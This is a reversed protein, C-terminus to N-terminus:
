TTLLSKAFERAEIAAAEPSSAGNYWIRDAYASTLQDVSAESAHADAPLPFTRDTRKIGVVIGGHDKIAEIENLFRVDDAVAIRGSHHAAVMQMKVTDIWLSPYVLDRGWETGLTQMMQRSSKGGFEELPMERVHQPGDLLELVREDTMGRLRFLTGLMAKLPGGFRTRVVLSEPYPDEPFVSRTAAQLGKFLTTKGFGKRALLGIIM